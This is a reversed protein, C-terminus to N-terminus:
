RRLTGKIRSCMMGARVKESAMRVITGIARKGEFDLSPLEVEIEYKKPEETLKEEKIYEHKVHTLCFFQAFVDGSSPVESLLSQMGFFELKLKYGDPVNWFNTNLHYSCGRYALIEIQRPSLLIGPKIPNSGPKVGNWGVAAVNKKCQSVFKYPAEPDYDYQLSFGGFHKLSIDLDFGDITKLLRPSSMDIEFEVKAM